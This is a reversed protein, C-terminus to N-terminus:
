FCLFPQHLLNYGFSVLHFRVSFKMICFIEPRYPHCRLYLLLAFFISNQITKFITNFLSNFLANFLSFLLHFIAKLDVLSFYIDDLSSLM